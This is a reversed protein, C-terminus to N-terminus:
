KGARKVIVQHQQKQADQVVRYPINEADKGRKYLEPNAEALEEMRKEFEAVKREVDEPSDTDEINDPLAVEWENKLENYKLWLESVSALDSRHRMVFNLFRQKVLSNRNGQMIGSEAMAELNAFPDDAKSKRGRATKIPASFGSKSDNLYAYADASTEEAFGRLPIYYQYMSSIKDYTEKSMLGCVFQKRLIADNVAKVKEWLDATDHAAEYEEVMKRAEAEAKVVDAEKTLATLGAYDTRRNLGVFGENYIIGLEKLKRNYVQQTISGEQLQKDLSYKKGDYWKQAEAPPLSNVVGNLQADIVAIARELNSRQEDTLTKKNLLNKIDKKLNEVHAVADRLAMVENRELGHKAFMYDILEQKQEENLALKAVADYLPKFKSNAMADVEAKNISSLANEAIYANEFEPVDEIYGDFDPGLISMMAEKLGLMSDQLAEQAQYMGTKVRREYRERATEEEQGERFRIEDEAAVEGSEAKRKGSETQYNGVGLEYQKAIDEAQGFVNFWGPNVLNQHSRWLIYRLENDGLPEDLTIGVKALMKMFFSKINSWLSPNVKEFNTNEALSALYEETATHFDWGHKKALETIEACIEPTVNRYVNDLFNKFNEGFLKRLGYHAVAEHLVTEVIDGTSGHNPVVVTIKGTRPDFWGKSTAKKGTLGETSELVEVNDLNLKEAVQRAKEAMRRRQRAVFERQRKGYYRPKGLVKSYPDSEMVVERDTLPGAGERNLNTEEKAEITFSGPKLIEAAYQKGVVEALKKGAFVGALVNGNTDVMMFTVGEPFKVSVRKADVVTGDKLEYASDEVDIREVDEIAVFEKGAQELIQQRIEQNGEMFDNKIDTLKPANLSLVSFGGGFFEWGAKTLNPLDVNVGRMCGKMFGEGCTELSPLSVVSPQANAMFFNGVERLKPFDINVDEGMTGVSYMFNAGVKELSPLPMVDVGRVRNFCNVGVERLKPLNASTLTANFCNDGAKELNPFDIRRVWFFDELFGHGADILNDGKISYVDYLKGVRGITEADASETELSAKDGDFTIVNKADGKIVKKAVTKREGKIEIERTETVEEGGTYFEVGNETFKLGHIDISEGNTVNQVKGGGYLFEGVLKEKGPNIVHAEGRRDVWFGDGLYVGGKITNYRFVKGDNSKVMNEGLPVAGLTELQKYEMLSESLGEVLKDLNNGLTANPQGVIREYEGRENFAGHNYRSITEIDHWKKNVRIMLHSLSFPDNFNPVLGDLVFTGDANKRGVKELYEAWEATMLSPDAVLEYATPTEMANNKTVTFVYQNQLRAEPHNYYCIVTMGHWETGPTYGADTKGSPVFKDRYMMKVGIAKGNDMTHELLSYGKTALLSHVDEVKESENRKFLEPNKKKFDALLYDHAAEVINAVDSPVGIVEKLYNLFEDPFTSVIGGHLEYMLDYAKEGGKKFAKKWAERDMNRNRAQPESGNEETGVSSISGNETELEGSQVQNEGKVKAGEPTSRQNQEGNETEVVAVQEVNVPEALDIDIGSQKFVANLVDRALSGIREQLRQVKTKGYYRGVVDDVFDQWDMPETHFVNRQVWNWFSKLAAKVKAWSSIREAMEFVGNANAIEKEAQEMTRRYNEGGSLRALVESAMRSDNGHINSYNADNAVENWVPSLKMAEVVENWLKPNNKEVDAGWLHAYEHVPTNPNIGDPTLRIKGDVAWGYVKGDTTRLPPVRNADMADAEEQSVVEIDLGNAKLREVAEMTVKTAREFAETGRDKLMQMEDAINYLVVKGDETTKEQMVEFLNGFAEEMWTADADFPYPMFRSQEDTAESVLFRPNNALYDNSAGQKSLENEVWTSFARAGLETPRAWYKSNHLGAYAASRKYYDSKKLTEMLSKWADAMERRVEHSNMRENYEEETLMQGSKWDYYRKGISSIGEPFLGEGATAYVDLGESGMKAFYNDLAHFWEHALSGAGKTKTLNIVLKGPEYHASFRGGGRAGFAMGLTGGLSLAQPSVKCVAALDMLADYCENLAKRRDEQTMWNGFEVGRFGFTTRFEEAPIDKGDRYDRGERPRNDEFDANTKDLLARYREQLEANNAEIYDFAEKSSKFGDQIVIDSKGKVAIFISKDQRRQYVAFKVEKKKGSSTVGAKDGAFAKLANVAEEKTDYIDGHKGADRVYWKGALTVFKGNEDYSGSTKDLQRLKANGINMGSDFGGIAMYADFQEKLSSSTFQPGNLLTNVRDWNTGAELCLKYLALTNNVWNRIKYTKRPKAPLYDKVIKIFSIAENSIGGERLKELDFNFVQSVPLKALKDTLTEDTEELEAKIRAMGEAFRDKKAGGIKEGVDEIKKVEQKSRTVPAEVDLEDEDSKQTNEQENASQTTGKDTSVTNQLTATDNQKGGDSTEGTDMTNGFASNKKEYATLLWQDRPKGLYERSVVAFHTDSELKIRNESTSVVKMDNIIEQLNDLVEPHKSAIKELGAKSNGWVLSIDGIEPHSLAGVAEGEKKGLLFQIAEKAKGKFQRYIRGFPGVEENVPVGSQGPANGGEANAEVPSVVEGTSSNPIEPSSVEGNGRAGGTSDAPREGGEIREGTAIDGNGGRKRAQGDKSDIALSNSNSQGNYDINFTEKIAEKLTRPTNDAEEFLSAEKAGQVLDYINNFHNQLNRQTWGKYVIALEIAFNSFNESPLFSEGSVDDLQYQRAWMMAAEKAEKYNKANAFAVDRALAYYARISNQVEGNMREGSPSDYDRFATALIAKQAKAPLANFMEELQTSGGKFISQYMVDRLDNKVEATLNGKSDFASKYQTPTIYGKQAMWKLVEVGNADVLEAFSAEENNSALLKNAFSRMDGGMKQMVNKPKIRETGGSETDQAVYQGLTIADADSVDLMNVLVPSKMAAIEEANLGFEVAHDMLYQKYKAAQDPNNEWMLRLAASRNNGQVAEGRTNVTPAGTYATVSSTIEEPRVNEAIKRASLVSAADNREKPQAEDIFHLPNRQGQIHSPQLQEAEIVAVRGTPISSDSFKVAIEKGMLGQVPEQRDVKHGNVRRYGRARADQPKDDVMDPVGNLAEREAREAAEREARLREEEAKLKAAAEDAVRKSEAEAALARKAKVGAIEEWKALDAKAKEINAVRENEAAIKETITVGARAKAKEAKKLADQKDAIMSNVAIMATEENGGAEEVVGDWALESDVQEYLPINNENRPIQELATKPAATEVPSVNGGSATQSEATVEGNEVAVGNQAKLEDVWERTAIREVGNDLITFVDGNEGLIEVTHVGDNSNYTLKGSEAEIIVAQQGAYENAIQEAVSKKEAETDIVAELSELDDASAASVEGTDADRVIIMSSSNAKDITGDEFTAVNGNVIYVRKPAAGNVGRMMAPHIAGDQRNKHSDIEKDSAKIREDIDDSIRDIMGEYATRANVYAIAEQRDVENLEMLAGVPDDDLRQVVEEGFTNLVREREMDYAQKVAGKQEDAAEYGESYRAGLMENLMKTTDDTMATKAEVLTRYKLSHVAYELVRQKQEDTYNPSHYIRKLEEEVADVSSTNIKFAINSWERQNDGFAEMGRGFAQMRKQNEKYGVKYQGTLAGGLANVTGMGFGPVSVAIATTILNDGDFFEKLSDIGDVPVGLVASEIEEVFEEIPGQYNVKEALEGLYHAYKNDMLDTAYKVAKEGGPIAAVVKGAVKGLGRTLWEAGMQETANEVGRRYLSKLFEEGFSGGEKVGAYDIEGGDAFDFLAQGTTNKQAEELVSPLGTTGAMTAGGAFAGGAGAAYILAKKAAKSMSKGAVRKLTAQAWKRAMGSAPNAAMEAALPIMDGVVKGANYWNSVEDEYYTHAAANLAFADLLASEARSLEKGQEVKRVVAEIADADVLGELSKVPNWQSLAEGTGAFFGKGETAADMVSKAEGILKDAARLSQVGKDTTFDTADTNFFAKNVAQLPKGYWRDGYYEENVNGRVTNWADTIEQFSENVQDRVTTKNLAKVADVDDNHGITRLFEAQERSLGGYEESKIKEKPIFAKLEGNAGVADEQNYAKPLSELWEEYSRTDGAAKAQEYNTKYPSQLAVEMPKIEPLKAVSTSEAKYTNDPMGLEEATFTYGSKDGTPNIDEAKPARPAAVSYTAGPFKEMFGKKKSVPLEYKVGENELAIMAGPFKAEFGAAKDDPINYTVGNNKYIPM